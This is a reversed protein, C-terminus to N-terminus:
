DPGHRGTQPACRAFHELLVGKSGVPQLGAEPVIISQQRPLRLILAGPADILERLGQWRLVGDSNPGHAEIGDDCFVMHMPRDLTKVDRMTKLWARKFAWRQVLSGLASVPLFVGAFMLWWTVRRGSSGETILLWIVVAAVVETTIWASMWARHRRLSPVHRGIQRWCWQIYEEDQVWRAEALVRPSSVAEPTPAQVSEDGAV